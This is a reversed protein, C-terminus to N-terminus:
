SHHPHNLYPWHDTITSLPVQIYVRFSAEHQMVTCGYEDGQAFVIWVSMRIIQRVVLQGNNVMDLLFAACCCCGYSYQGDIQYPYGVFDYTFCVQKAKTWRLPPWSLAQATAPWVDATTQLPQEVPAPAAKRSTSASSHDVAVNRFNCHNSIM